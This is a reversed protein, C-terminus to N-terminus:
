GFLCLLLSNSLRSEFCFPEKLLWCIDAFDYGNCAKLCNRTNLLKVNYDCDDHDDDYDDDDFSDVHKRIMM